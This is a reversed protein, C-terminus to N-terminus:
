QTFHGDYGFWMRTVFALFFKKLMCTPSFCALIKTRGREDVM